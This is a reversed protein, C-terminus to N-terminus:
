EELFESVETSLCGDMTPHVYSFRRGIEPMATFIVQDGAVEEEEARAGTRLDFMPQKGERTLLGVYMGGITSDFGELESDPVPVLSYVTSSATRFKM